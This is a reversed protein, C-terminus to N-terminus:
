AYACYFIQENRIGYILFVSYPPNFKTLNNNILIHAIRATPNATNMAYM